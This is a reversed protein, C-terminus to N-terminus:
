TPMKKPKFSPALLMALGTQPYKHSRFPDTLNQKNILVVSPAREMNRSPGNVPTGMSRYTLLPIMKTCMSSLIEIKLSRVTTPIARAKLPTEKAPWCTDPTTSAMRSATYTVDRIWNKSFYQCKRKAVCPIRIIRTSMAKHSSNPRWQATQSTEDRTSASTHWDVINTELHRSHHDEADLNDNGEGCNTIRHGLAASRSLITYAHTRVHHLRPRSRKIIRHHVHTFIGSHHNRLGFWGGITQRAPRDGNRQGTM